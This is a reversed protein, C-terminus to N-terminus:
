ATSIHKEQIRWAVATKYEFVTWNVVFLIDDICLLILLRCSSEHLVFVHDSCIIFEFKKALLLSLESASNKKTIVFMRCSCPDQKRKRNRCWHRQNYFCIIKVSVLPTCRWRYEWASLTQSLKQYREFSQSFFNFLDFLIKNRNLITIFFTNIIKIGLLCVNLQGIYFTFRDTSKTTSTLHRYCSFSHLQFFIQRHCKRSWFKSSIQFGSLFFITILIYFINKGILRINMSNFKNAPIRSDKMHVTATYSALPFETSENQMTKHLSSREQPHLKWKVTM